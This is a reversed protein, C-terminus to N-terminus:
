NSRKSVNYNKKTEFSPMIARSQLQSRIFGDRAKEGAVAMSAETVMKVCREVAQTHCPYDPFDMIGHSQSQILDELENDTVRNLM